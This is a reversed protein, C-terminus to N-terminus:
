SANIRGIQSINAFIQDIFIPEPRQPLLKLTEVVYKRGRFYAKLDNVSFAPCTPPFHRLLVQALTVMFMALNAANYSVLVLYQFQLNVFGVNLTCSNQLFL